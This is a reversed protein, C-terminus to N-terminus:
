QSSGKTLNKSNSKNANYIKNRGFTDKLEKTLVITGTDAHLEETKIGLAIERYSGTLPLAM